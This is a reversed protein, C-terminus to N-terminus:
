VWYASGYFDIFDVVGYYADCGLLSFTFLGDLAVGDVDGDGGHLCAVTVKDDFIGGAAECCFFNLNVFEDDLHFGRCRDEGCFRLDDIEEVAGM